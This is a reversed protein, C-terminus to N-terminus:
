DANRPFRDAIQAASGTLEQDILLLDPPTAVLRAFDRRLLAKRGDIVLIGFRIITLQPLSHHSHPIM